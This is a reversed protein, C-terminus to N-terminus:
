LGYQEILEYLGKKGLRTQEPGLIKGLTNKSLPKNRDPICTVLTRDIEPFYKVLGQGHNMKRRIEWGDKVLLRILQPGTIAPSDSM